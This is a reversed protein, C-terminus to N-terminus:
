CLCYKSNNVFTIARVKLQPTELQTTEHVPFPINGCCVQSLLTHATRHAFSKRFPNVM